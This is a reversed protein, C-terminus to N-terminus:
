FEYVNISSEDYYVNGNMDITIDLDGVTVSTMQDMKDQKIKRPDVVIELTKFIKDEFTVNDYQTIEVTIPQIKVIFISAGKLGWSRWDTDIRFAVGVKKDIVDYDYNHKEAENMKIYLSVDVQNYFDNDGAAKVLQKSTPRINM